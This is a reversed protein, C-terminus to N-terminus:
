QRTEDLSIGVQPIYCLRSAMRQPATPEVRRLETVVDMWRVVIDDADCQLEGQLGQLTM